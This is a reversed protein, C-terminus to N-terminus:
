IFVACRSITLKSLAFCLKVRRTNIKATKVTPNYVVLTEDIENRHKSTSAHKKVTGYFNNVFVVQYVYYLTRFVNLIEATVLLQWDDASSRWGGIPLAEIRTVAM